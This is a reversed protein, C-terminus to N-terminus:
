LGYIPLESNVGDRVEKAVDRFAQEIVAHPRILKFSFRPAGDDVSVMIRFDFHYLDGGQYVPLGVSLREPLDKGNAKIKTSMALKLEVNGSVSAAGQMDETKISKISSVLEMFEAANIAVPEGGAAYTADKVMSAYDILFRVFRQQSFGDGDSQLWSQLDKDRRMKLSVNHDCHSPTGDTGHYDIQAGLSEDQPDCFLKTAEQKFDNVYQVFGIVNPFNLSKKVRYPREAHRELDEINLDRHHLMVPHHGEVKVPEQTAAASQILHELKENAKVEM